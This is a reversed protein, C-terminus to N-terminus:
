ILIYFCKFNLIPLQGLENDYFNVPLKNKSLLSYLVDEFAFHSGPNIKSRKYYAYLAM